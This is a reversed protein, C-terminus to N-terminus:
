NVSSNALQTTHTQKSRTGSLATPVFLLKCSMQESHLPADVSPTARRRRCATLQVVSAPGLSLLIMEPQRVYHPCYLVRPPWVLPCLHRSRPTSHRGPPADEKHLAKRASRPTSRRGQPSRAETFAANSVSRPCAAPWARRSPVLRRTTRLMARCRRHKNRTRRQKTTTTVRDGAVKTGRSRRTETM